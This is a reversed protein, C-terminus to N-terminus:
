EILSGAVVRIAVRERCSARGIKIVAFVSFASVLGLPLLVMPWASGFGDAGSGSWHVAIPDPLEPIWSIMVVAAISAIAVPIVGGILVVRRRHSTRSDADTATRAGTM